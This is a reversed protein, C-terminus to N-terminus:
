GACEKETHRKRWGRERGASHIDDWYRIKLSISWYWALKGTEMNKKGHYNHVRNGLPVM